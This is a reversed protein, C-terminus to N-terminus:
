NTTAASAQNLRTEPRRPHLLLPPKVELAEVHKFLSSIDHGYEDFALLTMGNGIVANIIDSLKHHFCYNTAGQYSTGGYYDLGQDDVYPDTKFYSHFPKLPDESADEFMDLIPHMEYVFLHGDPRLLRSAVAFFGVVDPMWTLAGISVYVVDFSDDYDHPIDYVSTRVFECEIGGATALERAEAIFADSIDFGVCRAAGLNKISLIERGNNCCIQAVDRGEVGIELLRRTELEDLVSFGPKRFGELLRQRNHESHIPAVENWAARNAETYDGRQM